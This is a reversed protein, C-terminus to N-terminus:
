TKVVRSRWWPLKLDREGGVLRWRRLLIESIIPHKNVAGERGSSIEFATIEVCNFGARGRM